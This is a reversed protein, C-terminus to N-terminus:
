LCSPRFESGITFSFIDEWKEPLEEKNWYYPGNWMDTTVFIDDSGSFILLLDLFIKHHSLDLGNQM